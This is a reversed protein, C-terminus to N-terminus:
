LSLLGDRLGEDGPNVFWISLLARSFDGNLIKEHSKNKINLVVGDNYFTITMRDGVVMDELYSNFKELPASYTKYNKVSAELADEFGESIKKAGADHVFHMIIQKPSLSMLFNEPKNTKQELYLGGYYVKVKLITKKRIGIGNLVLEKGDINVKDPFIIHDKEAASTNALFILTLLFFISKMM